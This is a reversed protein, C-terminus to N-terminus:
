HNEVLGFFAIVSLTLLFIDVSSVTLAKIYVLDNCIELTEVDTVNAIRCRQSELCCRSLNDILPAGNWVVVDITLHDQLKKIFWSAVQPLQYHFNKTWLRRDLIPDTGTCLTINDTFEGKEKTRNDDKRL